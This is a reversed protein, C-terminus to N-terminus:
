TAWRTWWPLRRFGHEDLIDNADALTTEPTCTYPTATMWEQVQRSVPPASEHIKKKKKAETAVNTETAMPM